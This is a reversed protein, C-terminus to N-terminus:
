RKVPEGFGFVYGNCDRVAFENMQYMEQVIPGYVIDAGRSKLETFLAELGTVWFFVDWTGGQRENPAITEDADVRKLMIDLEDRSCIAFELPSGGSYTCKFRLVEEYFQVTKEVDLVPFYPASRLLKITKDTSM